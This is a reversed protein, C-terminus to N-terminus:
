ITCRMCQEDSVPSKCCCVCYFGQMLGAKSNERQEWSYWDYFTHISHTKRINSNILRYEHASWSNVTFSQWRKSVIVPWLMCEFFAPNNRYVFQQTSQASDFNQTTQPVTFVNNPQEHTLHTTLPYNVFLCSTPINQGLLQNIRQTVKQIRWKQSKVESSTV